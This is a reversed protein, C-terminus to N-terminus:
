VDCSKVIYTVFVSSLIIPNIRDIIHVHEEARVVYDVCKM